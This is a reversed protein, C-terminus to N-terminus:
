PQRCKLKSGTLVCESPAFTHEGCRGLASLIATSGFTFASRIPGAPVSITADTVKYKVLIESPSLLRRDEIRVLRIRGNTAPSPCDRTIERYLFKTGKSRWAHCSFPIIGGGGLPNGDFQSREYLSVGAGLDDLAIQAGRVSPRPLDYEPFVPVRGSFAIKQKGPGAGLGTIVLQGGTM